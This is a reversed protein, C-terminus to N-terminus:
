FTLTNTCESMRVLATHLSVIEIGEVLDEPKMGVMTLSSKCSMVNGGFSILGDLLEEPTFNIEDSEENEQTNGDPKKAITVSEQLLLINVDFEEMLLTLAIRLGGITKNRHIPNDPSDTFVIYYKPPFNKM